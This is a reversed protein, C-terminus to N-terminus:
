RRTARGSRSSAPSPSPSDGNLTMGSDKGLEDADEETLGSLRAAVEFLEDLVAAPLDGLLETDEPGFILEGDMDRVCRVLLKATANSTDRGVVKGGRVIVQQSYYEDRQKASLGTVRVKEPWGAVEIDEGQPKSAALIQDRLSM